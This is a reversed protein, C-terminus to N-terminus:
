IRRAGRAAPGCARAAELLLQREATALANRAAPVADVSVSISTIGLRVLQEAFGPRSSPAQGCLSVTLGHARSKEIISAIADLVAPDSEDFLESCLESDRDVGLVLQTLDNSGISVGDIGLQAYEPLWYVVSPVEAMIWRKLGRQRGLPSQAVRELCGELEWKTRVFPLMLQLNPTEERVAALVELELDFLQPDRLYRFCGRYGIMPNAEVPEYLEGGQLKRFENTRFDYARYVVPRPAFARTITLLAGRMADVFEQRRGDALLKSPHMGALADVIMFEARLLGVGDVPLRAAAEAQNALALNVYLLTGTAESPVSQRQAPLAPQEASAVAAAQAGVLV